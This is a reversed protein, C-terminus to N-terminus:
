DSLRGQAEERTLCRGIKRMNQHAGGVGWLQKQVEPARAFVQRATLSKV